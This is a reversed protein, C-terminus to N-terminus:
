REGDRQDELAALRIERLALLDVDDCEGKRVKVMREHLQELAGAVCILEPESGVFFEDLRDELDTFLHCTRAIFKEADFAERM